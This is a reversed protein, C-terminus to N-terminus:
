CIPNSFIKVAQIKGNFLISMGEFRKFHVINGCIQRENDEKVM